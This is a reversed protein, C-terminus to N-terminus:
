VALIALLSTIFKICDSLNPSKSTLLEFVYLQIYSLSVKYMQQIEKSILSDFSLSFICWELHLRSNGRLKNVNNQSRVNHCQM